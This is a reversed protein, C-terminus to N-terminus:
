RDGEVVLSTEALLREGKLNDAERSRVVRDEPPLHVRLEHRGGVVGLELQLHRPGLSHDGDAGLKLV